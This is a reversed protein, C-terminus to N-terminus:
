SWHFGRPAAPPDLPSSRVVSQPQPANYERPAVDNPSDPYFLSALAQIHDRGVSLEFQGGGYVTIDERQCYEITAFLSQVSGFRSPKINIHTPEYPLNKVSDIGTIPADWSVSHAPQELISNIEPSTSPDEIIVDPFLEIVARYFGPSSGSSLDAEDYHEKFDLIRVANTAALSRLLEDSWDTSPDLKFELSPDITLWEKVRENTSPDGLRTSVVFRVPQYDRDLVASLSCEAQKLALDLAASEFAWQRYNHFVEREPPERIFLEIGDLHASFETLTFSGTVDIEEVTNALHYHAENTYTVDEGFGEEGDGSLTLKTTTRTFDSSTEEELTEVSLDQITVPLSAVKDFASRM